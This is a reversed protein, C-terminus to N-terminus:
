EAGDQKDTFIEHWMSLLIAQFDIKTAGLRSLNYLFSSVDWQLACAEVWSSLAQAATEMCTWHPSHFSIYLVDIAISQM